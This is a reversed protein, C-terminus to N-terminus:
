SGLEGGIIEAEKPDLLGREEDAILSFPLLEMFYQSIM